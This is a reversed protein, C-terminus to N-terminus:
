AIEKTILTNFLGLIYGFFIEIQGDLFAYLGMALALKAKDKSISRLKLKNM